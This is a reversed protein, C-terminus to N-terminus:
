YKSKIRCRKKREGRFREIRKGGLNNVTDKSPQLVEWNRKRKIMIVTPKQAKLM